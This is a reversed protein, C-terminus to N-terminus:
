PCRRAAAVRALAEPPQEVFIIGAALAFHAGHRAHFHALVPDWAESQAAVLGEPEEARYCVLDSAAYKAIEERVAQMQVAVGDIASNSIRTMPMLAPDIHEKQAM